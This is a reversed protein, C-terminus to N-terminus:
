VGEKEVYCLFFVDIFHARSYASNSKTGDIDGINLCTNQPRNPSIEIPHM